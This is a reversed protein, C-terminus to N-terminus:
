DLGLGTTDSVQPVRDIEILIDAASMLADHVDAMTGAENAYLWEAYDFLYDVRLWPKTELCKLASERAALQDYRTESNHALCLWAYAQVEATCDANTRNMEELVRIGIHGLCAARWGILRKRHQRHVSRLAADCASLAQPWQGAAVLCELLMCNLNLQQNINSPKAANLASVANGLVDTLM